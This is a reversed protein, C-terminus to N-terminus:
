EAGGKLAQEAEEETLFIEDNDYILIEGDTFAVAFQIDVPNTYYMSIIKGKWYLKARKDTVYVVDGVKCPPVIVGNLLLHDALVGVEAFDIIKRHIPPEKIEAKRLLEILRDRM